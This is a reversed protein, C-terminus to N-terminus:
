SRHVKRYYNNALERVAAEKDQCEQLMAPESPGTDGRGNIAM